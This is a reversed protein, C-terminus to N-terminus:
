KAVRLILNLEFLTNLDVIGARYANQVDIVERESVFFIQASKLCPFYYTYRADEDLWELAEACMLQRQAVLDYIAYGDHVALPELGEFRTLFPDKVCGSLILVSVITILWRKM